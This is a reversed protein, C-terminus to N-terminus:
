NDVYPLTLLPTESCTKLHYVKAGGKKSDFALTGKLSIGILGPNGFVNAYGIRRHLIAVAATISYRPTNGSVYSM